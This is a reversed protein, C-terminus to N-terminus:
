NNPAGALIWQRLLELDAATVATGKPPMDGSQIETYVMSQDLSGPQILDRRPGNMLADYSSLDVHSKAQAGSHCKVCSQNFIQTQIDAYSAASGVVAPTPVPTPAVNSPAASAVAFSGNPAGALIWDQIAQVEVSSLPAGADPMDGTQVETYVRSQAPNGPVIQNTGGLIARYSSLDVGGKAASSNHCQGCKPLFINQNLAAFSNLSQANQIGDAMPLKSVTSNCCWVVLGWILFLFWRM